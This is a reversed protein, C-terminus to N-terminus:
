LHSRNHHQHHHLHHHDDDEFFGNGASPINKKIEYLLSVVGDKPFDFGSFIDNVMLQESLRPREENRYVSLWRESDPYLVISFKESSNLSSTGASSSPPPVTNRSRWLWKKQLYDVLYSVCQSM